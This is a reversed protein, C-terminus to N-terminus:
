LDATCFGLCQRVQSKESGRGIDDDIVPIPQHFVVVAVDLVAVPDDALGPLEKETQRVVSLVFHSTLGTCFGRCQPADM